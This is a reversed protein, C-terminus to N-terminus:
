NLSRGFLKRFIGEQKPIEIQSGIMINFARAAESNKMQVVAKHAKKAAEFSAPDEPIEFWTKFHAMKAIQSPKYYGLPSVRNVVLQAKGEEIWSSREELFRSVLTEVMGQEQLALIYVKDALELGRKTYPFFPKTGFDLLVYDYNSCLIEVLDEVEEGQIPIDNPGSPLIHLGSPHKKLSAPLNRAYQRWTEVTPGNNPDPVGLVVAANGTGIDLDALVTKYGKLAYLAGLNTAIATKGAGGKTSFSAIIQGRDIHSGLRGNISNMPMKIPQETQKIRELSIQPKNNPESLRVASTIDTKPFTEMNNPSKNFSITFDNSPKPSILKQVKEKVQSLNCIESGPWQKLVEWSVVGTIVALSPKEGPLVDQPLEYIVLSADSINESYPFCSLMTKLEDSGFVHIM